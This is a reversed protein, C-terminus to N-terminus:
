ISLKRSLLPEILGELELLVDDGAAYARMIAVAVKKQVDTELGLVTQEKGLAIEEFFPKPDVNLAKCIKAVVMPRPPASVEREINSLHTFHIGAREALDQLTVHKSKRVQRLIRGFSM